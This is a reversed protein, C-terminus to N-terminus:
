LIELAEKFKNNISINMKAADELLLSIKTLNADDAKKAWSRYTAAHDLNHKIWHDLLKVMKEEVTMSAEAEHHHHHGLSHDHKHEM